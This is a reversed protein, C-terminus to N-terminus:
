HLNRCIYVFRVRSNEPVTKIKIAMPDDKCNRLGHIFWLRHLFNYKNGCPIDYEDESEDMMDHYGDWSPISIVEYEIINVYSIDVLTSNGENLISLTLFDNMVSIIEGNFEQVNGESDIATINVLSGEPAIFIDVPAQEEEQVITTQTVFTRNRDGCGTLTLVLAAIGFGLFVWWLDTYPFQQRKM